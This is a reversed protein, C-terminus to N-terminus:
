IIDHGLKPGLAIYCVFVKRKKKYSRCSFDSCLFIIFVATRIPKVLWVFEGIEYVSTIHTTDCSIDAIEKMQTNIEISM